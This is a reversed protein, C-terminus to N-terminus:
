AKLQKRRYLALGLLGTALLPLALPAPVPVPVGVSSSRVLWSGLGNEVATAATVDQDSDWYDYFNMHDVNQDSDENWTSVSVVDAYSQIGSYVMGDLYNTYEIILGNGDTALVEQTYGMLDFLDSFLQNSANITDSSMHSPIAASFEPALTASLMSHVETATAYRWGEYGGGAQMGTMIDNYSQGYTLGVDYFDLGTSAESFYDGQDTVGILAANAVGSVGAILVASSCFMAIKKMM